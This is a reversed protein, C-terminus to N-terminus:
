MVMLRQIRIVEGSEQHIPDEKKESKRKESVREESQLILSQIIFFQNGNGDPLNVISEQQKWFV